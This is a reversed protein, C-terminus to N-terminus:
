AAQQQFHLIFWVEICPNSIAVKYGLDTAESIARTIHPHADCDFVCWVRDFAPSGGRSLSRDLRKAYRVISLPDTHRHKLTVRVRDRHDRYWRNLYQPETLAGEAVILVRPIAPRKPVRRAV